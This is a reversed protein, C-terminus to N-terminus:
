LAGKHNSCAGPFSPWTERSELRSVIEPPLGANVVVPQLATDNVKAICHLISKVAWGWKMSKQQGSECSKGPEDLSGRKTRDM